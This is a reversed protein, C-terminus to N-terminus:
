LLLRKNKKKGVRDICSKGKYLLGQNRRSGQGINAFLDSCSHKLDDDLAELLTACTEGQLDSYRSDAGYLLLKHIIKTERTDMISRMAVLLPTSRENFTQANPDSGNALLYRVAQYSGSHCAWHLATYGNVDQRESRFHLGSAKLSMDGRFHENKLLYHLIRPQNGQAAFHLCDISHSNKAAIDGGLSVLRKLLDLNGNYSAFHVAAFQENAQSEECESELDSILGTRKNIWEDLFGTEEPNDSSGSLDKGKVISM